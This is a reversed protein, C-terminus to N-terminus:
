KVLIKATKAGQRLIYLGPQLNEGSVRIGNLNYYEVPANSDFGDAEGDAIIDEVGSMEPAPADQLTAFNGFASWQAAAKYADLAEAPVYLTAESLDCGAFIDAGLALEYEDPNAAEIVFDKVPVGAFAEAGISTVTSPIYISKLDACGKFAAAGITTIAQNAEAARVPASKVAHTTNGLNVTKLGKSGEFAGNFITTIGSKTLDLVPDDFETGAFAGAGIASPTRTSGGVTVEQALASASTPQSADNSGLIVLRDGYLMYDINNVTTKVYGVINKFQKWQDAAKYAEVSAAPVYLTCADFDAGHIADAGCTPPVEAQCVLSTMFINDYLAKSGLSTITSPLIIEPVFYATNFAGEALETVTWEYDLGSDEPGWHFHWKEPVQTAAVYVGENNDSVVLSSNGEKTTPIGLKLGNYEASEVKKITAGCNYYGTFFPLIEITANSPFTSSYMSPAKEKWINVNTLNTCDSFASRGIETVSNPIEVSTLGSCSAFAYRGIETVSNPIEVSTLGSCGSFAGEGIKTVSNPIEVSTLGSCGSFADEGIKTVSNPIEVSTLGSCGSFAYEGISTVSTPIEVSTLGSCDRFADTDISTTTFTLDMFSPASAIVVKGIYNSKAVNCTGDKIADYKVGNYFFEAPMASDSFSSVTLEKWGEAKKYALLAKANPVYLTATLGSFADAACVAPTANESYVATIGSGTFANSCVREVTTPVIIEKLGSIKNAIYAPITKVNETFYISTFDSGFASGNEDGAAICNPADFYLTGNKILHTGYFSDAGISFESTPFKVSTLGSCSRFLNAPIVEVENGITVNKISSRNYFPGDSYNSPLSCNKANYIVTEIASCWSFASNGISTVSNGIEVSTLGSCGSFANNGISTVSNPIEVSTLGSCRRFASEGISTVSNGIEVSTLGTCERFLYAPIVEVENGITVNKISSLNYFPGDSWNGLLSCNKANYVVTELASCCKFASNGISTVSNGIEVKTLGSCYGFAQNGISTVSNPIEVSTLGSCDYFSWGGISTVSNGIEVSTLGSCMRFAAEGISTVSNPIEVSTLGSCDYFSWDGISTVSNGIEVSTLGSCSRFASKGISTVSNGIEVSVLSSCNQFVGYDISTVSYTQNNHEVTEPIVVEDTPVIDGYGTVTATLNADDYRYKLEYASAPLVSSLGVMVLLATLAGRWNSLLKQKM